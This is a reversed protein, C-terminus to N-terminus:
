REQAQRMQAKLNAQHGTATHEYMEPCSRARPLREPGISPTRFVPARDEPRHSLAPACVAVNIAHMAGPEMHHHPHPRRGVPSTM